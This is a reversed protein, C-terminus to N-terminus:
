DCGLLFRIDLSLLKMIYKAEDMKVPASPVYERNVTEYQRVLDPPFDVPIEVDKTDSTKGASADWEFIVQLTDALHDCNRPLFNKHQEQFGAPIQADPNTKQLNQGKGTLIFKEM